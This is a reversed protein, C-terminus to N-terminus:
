EASFLLIDEFHRDITVFMSPFIQLVRATMAAAKFYGTNYVSYMYHIYPFATIEGSQFNGFLDL